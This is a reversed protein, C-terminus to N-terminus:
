PCIENITYIDSIRGGGLIAIRGSQSNYGFRQFGVYGGFRNKSNVEGCVSDGVVTVNRFQASDPDILREAVRRQAETVKSNCATLLVVAAVVAIRPAYFM